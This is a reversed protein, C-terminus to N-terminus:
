RDAEKPPSWLVLLAGILVAMPWVLYGAKASVMLEVPVQQGIDVAALTRDPDEPGLSRGVLAMVAAAVCSGLVILVTTFRFDRSRWWTLLGGSLVGAVLALVAYWGDANFRKTLDLEGMSGGEDLKTFSAPDVLLWWLVGCVVGLLVYTVSVVVVDGWPGEPLGRRTASRRSRGGDGDTRHTM